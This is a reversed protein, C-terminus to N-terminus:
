NKIVSDVLDYRMPTDNIVIGVINGQILATWLLINLAFLQPFSQAIFNM